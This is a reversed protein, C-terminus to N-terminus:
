TGDRTESCLQKQYSFFGFVIQCFAILFVLLFFQKTQIIEELLLILLIFFFPLPCQSFDENVLLGSYLSLLIGGEPEKRREGRKKAKKGWRRYIHPITKQDAKVSGLRLTSNSTPSQWVM